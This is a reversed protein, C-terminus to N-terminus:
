ALKRGQLAEGRRARTIIPDLNSTGTDCGYCITTNGTTYGMGERVLSGCASCIGIVKPKRKWPLRVITAKTM